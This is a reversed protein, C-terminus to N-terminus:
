EDEEEEFDEEDWEDEEDDFLMERVVVEAELDSPSLAM